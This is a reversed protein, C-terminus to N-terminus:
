SISNDSDDISDDSRTARTPTQSVLRGFPALGADIAGFGQPRRSLQSVQSSPISLAPGASGSRPENGFPSLVPVPGPHARDWHDWKPPRHRGSRRPLAQWHRPGCTCKPIQLHCNAAATKRQHIQSAPHLRPTFLFSAPWPLLGLISRLYLHVRKKPRTARDLHNQGVRVCASVLCLPPCLPVTHADPSNRDAPHGALGQPLLCAWSCHLL